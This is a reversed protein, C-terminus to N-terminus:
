PVLKRIERELQEIRVEYLKIANAIDVNIREGRRVKRVYDPTVGFTRAIMQAMDNREPRTIRKKHKQQMTYYM